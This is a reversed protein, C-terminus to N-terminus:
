WRALTHSILAPKVTAFNSLGRPESAWTIQPM